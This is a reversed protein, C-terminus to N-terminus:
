ENDHENEMSERLMKLANELLDLAIQKDAIIQNIIQNSVVYDLVMGTIKSQETFDDTIGEALVFLAEGVDTESPPKLKVWALMAFRCLELLRENSVSDIWCLPCQELIISILLKPEISDTEKFFWTIEDICNIVKQQIQEYNVINNNIQMNALRILDRMTKLESHRKLYNLRGLSVTYNIREIIQQKNTIVCSDIIHELWEIVKERNALIGTRRKKIQDVVNWSLVGVEIMQYIMDIEEQLLEEIREPTLITQFCEEIFEQKKETFTEQRVIQSIKDVTTKM